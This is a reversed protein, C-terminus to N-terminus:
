FTVTVTVAAIGGLVGTARGLRAAFAAYHNTGLIDHCAPRVRATDRAMTSADCRFGVTSRRQSQRTAWPFKVGLREWFRVHVERNM